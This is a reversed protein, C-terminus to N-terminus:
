ASADGAADRSSGGIGVLLVIAVSLQLRRQRLTDTADCRREPNGWDDAGPAAPADLRDYLTINSWGLRALMIASAVGTPGAGVIVPKQPLATEAADIQGALPTPLANQLAAFRVGFLQRWGGSRSPSFALGSAALLAAAVLVRMRVSTANRSTPSRRLVSNSVCLIAAVRVDAKRPPVMAM